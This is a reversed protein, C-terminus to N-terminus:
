RIIFLKLSVALNDEFLCLFVTAEYRISMSLIVEPACRVKVAMAAYTADAQWRRSINWSVQPDAESFMYAVLCISNSNGNLCMLQSSNSRSAYSFYDCTLDIINIVFVFICFKTVSGRLIAELLDYFILM